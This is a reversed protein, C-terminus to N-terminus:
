RLSDPELSATHWKCYPEPLNNKTHTQKKMGELSARETTQPLDGNIMESKGM